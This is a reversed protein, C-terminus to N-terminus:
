ADVGLSIVDRLTDVPVDHLTCAGIALPLVMHIVDGMRKKDGLAVAAIEQASYPAKIPLGAAKLAHEIRAPVTEDCLHLKQAIHAAYAMGIAVAQGHSVTFGSLKEVAHGLTHGLNLQQRVGTDREDQTVFEAKIRVNRAVIENINPWFDQTQLLNFLSEDQLVGHKFCEALGDTLINEPLTKLADTDCVVLAPQWFAGCLNKGQPLDIATKGGVSADVMALLTTPVQVFRVGRLYTAAAFGAVDGVVGGGLAIVLDSRTIQNECLFSLVQMYTQLNKHVEGHAFHMRCVTFGCKQLSFQVKEGYLADVTDDTVIAARCPALKGDLLAGAHELLGSGILVEYPRGTNVPVVHVNM